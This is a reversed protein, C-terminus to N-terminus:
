VTLLDVFEVLLLIVEYLEVSLLPWVVPVLVSGSYWVFGCECVMVGAPLSPIDSTEGRDPVEPSDNSQM